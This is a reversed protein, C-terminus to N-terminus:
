PQAAAAPFIHPVIIGYKTNGKYSIITQNFLYNKLYNKGKKISEKSDRIPACADYVKYNSV